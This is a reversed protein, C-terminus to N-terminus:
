GVAKEAALCEPCRKSRTVTLPGNDDPFKKGHLNKNFIRCCGNVNEVDGNDNGFLIHGFSRNHCGGCFGGDCDIKVIIKTM